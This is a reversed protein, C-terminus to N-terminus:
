RGPRPCEPSAPAAALAAELDEDLLRRPYALRLLPGTMVTTAVATLVLLSYLTRDLLGLQLGASLVILETLGRTNMLVALTASRRWDERALRAGALAGAFKGGVAVLLILGFEGLGALGVGSLDVQLGAVVFYVPLLLTTGVQEIRQAVGERVEAVDEPMLLGFLFAGFLFHLGAWETFASSVLLGILVAAFIELIWGRRAQWRILRGLLPRVVLFGAAAFPVILLVRWPDHGGGGLTMVAVALMSWCLLDGVAASGLALAGIRTGSMGRDGIIRALVPFATVSMATGVYLVFGLTHGGGHRAALWGALVTGLAFPVLTSGASVAAISGLRRRLLKRSFELGALFMFLVVGVNALASLMPRVGAPFLADAIAGHFLTPGFAIGALIEGIVPPQDFRRALAGMARAVVLIVALDLLLTVVQGSTM